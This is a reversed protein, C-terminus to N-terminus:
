FCLVEDGAQAEAGDQVPIAVQVPDNAADAGLDLTFAGVAQLLGPAPAALGM